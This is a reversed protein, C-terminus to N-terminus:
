LLLNDLLSYLHAIITSHGPTSELRPKEVSNDHTQLVEDDDDDLQVISVFIHYGNLKIFKGLQTLSENKETLSPLIDSFVKIPNFHQVIITALCMVADNYEKITAFQHEPVLTGDASVQISPKILNNGM